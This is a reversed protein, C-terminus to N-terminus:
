IAVLLRDDVRGLQSDLVDIDGSGHLVVVFALSLRGHVLDSLGRM